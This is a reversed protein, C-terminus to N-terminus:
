NFLTFLNEEGASVACLNSKINTGLEWLPGTLNQNGYHCTTQPAKVFVDHKVGCITVNNRTRKSRMWKVFLIKYSINLLM